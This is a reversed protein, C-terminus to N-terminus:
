PAPRSARRAAPRFGAHVAFLDTSALSDTLIRVRVGRERSRDAERPTLAGTEDPEDIFYKLDIAREALDALTAALLAASAVAPLAGNLGV